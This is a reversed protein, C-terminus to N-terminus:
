GAILRRRDRSEHILAVRRQFYKAALEGLPAAFGQADRAPLSASSAIGHRDLRDPGIAGLPRCPRAPHALGDTDQGPHRM